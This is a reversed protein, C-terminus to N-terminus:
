THLNWAEGQEFPTGYSYLRDVVAEWPQLLAQEAPALTSPDVLRRGVARAPPVISRAEDLTWLHSLDLCFAHSGDSLRYVRLPDFFAPRQAVVSAMDLCAQDVDDLLEGESALRAIDGQWLAGDTLRHPLHGEVRIVVEGDLAFFEVARIADRWRGGKYSPQVQKRM